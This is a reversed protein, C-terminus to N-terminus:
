RVLPALLLVGLDFGVAAGLLLHDLRFGRELRLYIIAAGLLPLAGVLLLSYTPQGAIVGLSVGLLGSLHIGDGPSLGDLPPLPPPPSYLAM